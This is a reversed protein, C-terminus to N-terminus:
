QTIDYKLSQWQEIMNAEDGLVDNGKTYTWWYEQSGVYIASCPTEGGNFFKHLMAGFQLGADYVQHISDTPRLPDRFTGVRIYNNKPSMKRRESSESSETYM